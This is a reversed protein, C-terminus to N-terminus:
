PCQITIPGNDTRRQWSKVQGIVNLLADSNAPVHSTIPWNKIVWMRVNTPYLNPQFTFPVFIHYVICSLPTFNYNYKSIIRVILLGIAILMSYVDLLMTYVNALHFQQATVM